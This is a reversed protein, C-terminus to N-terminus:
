DSSKQMQAALVALAIAGDAVFVSRTLLSTAPLAASVRSASECRSPGPSMACAASYRALSSEHM